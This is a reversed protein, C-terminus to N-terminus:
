ENPTPNITGSMNKIIKVFNQTSSSNIDNCNVFTPNKYNYLYGNFIKGLNNSDSDDSGEVLRTIGGLSSGSQCDSISSSTFLLDESTGNNVISYSLDPLDKYALNVSWETITINKLPSYIPTNNPQNQSSLQGKLNNNWFIYGLGGLVLVVLVISVILHTNGLQLQGKGM